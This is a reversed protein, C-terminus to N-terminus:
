VGTSLISLIKLSTGKNCPTTIQSLDELTIKLIGIERAFQEVKQLITTGTGSACKSLSDIYISDEKITFDVCYNKFEDKDTVQIQEYEDNDKNRIKVIKFEFEGPPFISEIIGRYQSDSM